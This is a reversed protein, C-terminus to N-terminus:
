CSLQAKNMVFSQNVSLWQERGIISGIINTDIWAYIRYDSMKKAFKYFLIDSPDEIVLFILPRTPPKLLYSQRSNPERDAALAPCQTLTM